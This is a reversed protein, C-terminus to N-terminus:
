PLSFGAEALASHYDEPTNLNRLTRLGPDVDRLEEAEVVRTRVAEMLFVPRLRDSHLLAGIAPLVAARRYLAAM